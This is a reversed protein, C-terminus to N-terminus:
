VDLDLDSVGLLRACDGHRGGAEAAKAAATTVCNGFFFYWSGRLHLAELPAIGHMHNVTSSGTTTPFRDAWAVGLRGVCALGLWAAMGRWALGRWSVGSRWM